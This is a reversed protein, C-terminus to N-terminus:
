KKFLTNLRRMVDAKREPVLRNLLWLCFALHLAATLALLERSGTFSLLGACWVASAIMFLANMVNNAAIVRVTSRADSDKQMVAYLPVIFLGGGRRRGWSGLSVGPTLADVELAALKEEDFLSRPQNPNREIQDLPIENITSSGETRVNETSLLADLGRGLANFKKHVAM